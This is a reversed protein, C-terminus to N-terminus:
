KKVVGTTAVITEAGEVTKNAVTNVSAVVAEGVVNAQEKTKEAVATEVFASFDAFLERKGVYMVGEKTKEAAETVGQKTKEAAAVVGEKAISFGKKFVDM